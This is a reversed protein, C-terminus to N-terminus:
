ATPGDLILLEQTNLTSELMGSESLEVKVLYLGAPPTEGIAVAYSWTGNAAVVISATKDFRDGQSWRSYFRVKVTKGTLSKATTRDKDTYITGTLKNSSSYDGRFWRTQDLTHYLGYAM